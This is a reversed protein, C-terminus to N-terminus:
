KVLTYSIMTVLVMAIVVLIAIVVTLLVAFGKNDGSPKNNSNDQKTYVKPKENTLTIKDELSDKKNDNVMADLEIRSTNEMPNPKEVSTDSIIPQVVPNENQPQVVPTDTQPEELIIPKEEEITEPNPNVIPTPRVMTVTKGTMESMKSGTVKDVMQESRNLKEEFEAMQEKRKLAEEYAMRKEDVRRVLDKVIEEITMPKDIYEKVAADKYYELPKDFLYKFRTYLKDIIFEIKIKRELREREESNM